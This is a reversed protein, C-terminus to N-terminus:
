VKDAFGDAVKRVIGFDFIISDSDEFDLGHFINGDSAFRTAAIDGDEGLINIVCTFAFVAVQM